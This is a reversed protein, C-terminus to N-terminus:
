EESVAARARQLLKELECEERLLKKKEEGLADVQERLALVQIRNRNRNRKAHIVNLRRQREAKDRAELSSPPPLAVSKPISYSEAVARASAPMPLDWEYRIRLEQWQEFDELGWKGGIPKPLMDDPMGHGYLKEAFGAPSECVHVLVAEELSSHDLVKAMDRGTKGQCFDSERTGNPCCGLLHFRKLRVPHAEMVVEWCIQFAQDLALETKMYLVSYGETQSLENESV